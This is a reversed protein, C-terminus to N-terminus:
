GARKKSNVRTRNDLQRQATSYTTNVVPYLAENTSFYIHGPRRFCPMDACLNQM